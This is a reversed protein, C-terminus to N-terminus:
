YDTRVRQRLADGNTLIRIFDEALRGKEMCTHLEQLFLRADDANAEAM